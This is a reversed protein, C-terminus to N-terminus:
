KQRWYSDRVQVTTIYIHWRERQYWSAKAHQSNWEKVMKLHLKIYFFENIEINEKKQTKFVIKIMYM